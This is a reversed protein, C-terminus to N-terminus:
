RVYEQAAGTFASPRVTAGAFYEVRIREDSIMQVLMWGNVIRGLTSTTQYAVLGNAVSVSAPDPDTEPIRLVGADTITGGVSIRPKGDFWDYAFSISKPWGEPGMTVSSKASAISSHFWDGVLRGRVGYDIRGDKNAPVGEFVRVRAYLWSRLPEAFYKYPSVGHGTSGEYRAPNVFGAPSVDYDTVGLDMSPCRGTTYAITDGASVHTGVVVNPQLVVHDYYYHFTKTMQVDVKTDSRGVETQLVFTVVGSGAARVPRASCDNNQQQGGWPDVFYMYVHDTPLVHGPPALAGLPTTAKLTGTDLPSVSLVGPGTATIGYRNDDTVTGTSNGAGDGCAATVLPLAVLIACLARSYTVVALSHNPSRVPVLISLTNSPSM